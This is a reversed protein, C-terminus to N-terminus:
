WVTSFWFVSNHEWLSAKLVASCSPTSFVLELAMQSHDWQAVLMIALQNHRLLAGLMIVQQNHLLLAGLVIALQDFTDSKRDLSAFSNTM